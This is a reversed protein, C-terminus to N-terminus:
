FKSAIKEACGSCIFAGDIDILEDEKHCLMCIPMDRRIVIANGELTIRLNDNVNINLAARMKKPLVVRGLSDLQRVDNTQNKM